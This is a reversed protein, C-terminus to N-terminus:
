KQDQTRSYFGTHLSILFYFYLLLTDCIYKYYFKLINLNFLDDLTLIDLTKFLAGTHANYKRGSIIRIAKKQLKIWHQCSYGRVLIGYNLNSNIMSFYLPRLTYVPLYHKSKNRMGTYESIENALM